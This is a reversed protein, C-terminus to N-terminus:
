WQIKADVGQNSIIQDIQLVYLWYKHIGSLVSDSLTIDPIKKDIKKM